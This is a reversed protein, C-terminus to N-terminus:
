TLAWTLAEYSMGHMALDGRYNSHSNLCLRHQLPLMSWVGCEDTSHAPTGRGASVSPQSVPLGM